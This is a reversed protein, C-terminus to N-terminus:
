WWQRVTVFPGGGNDYVNTDNIGFQLKPATIGGPVDIFRIGLCGSHAGVPFWEEPEYYRNRVHHWVYGSTLRAMLMYQREGPLPWGAPALTPDGEVNKNTGWYDIRTTGTATIRLGDGDGLGYPARWVDFYNGRAQWPDVDVYKPRLNTLCDNVHAPTAAAPSAPLVALASTTLAVTAAALAKMLSRGRRKSTTATM